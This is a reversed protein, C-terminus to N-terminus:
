TEILELWWPQKKPTFNQWFSFPFNPSDGLLKNKKLNKFIFDCFFFHPKQIPNVLNLLPLWVLALNCFTKITM